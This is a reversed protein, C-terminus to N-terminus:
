QEAGVPGPQDGRDAGNQSVRAGIAHRQMFLGDCLGTSIKMCCVAFFADHSVAVLGDDESAAPRQLPWPRRPHWVNEAALYGTKVMILFTTSCQVSRNAPCM